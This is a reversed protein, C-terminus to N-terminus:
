KISVIECEDISSDSDCDFEANIELTNLLDNYTEEDMDDPVSVTLELEVKIKKSTYRM